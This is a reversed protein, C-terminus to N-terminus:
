RILPDFDDLLSVFHDKKVWRCGFPPDASDPPFTPVSKPLKIYDTCVRVGYDCQQYIEKGDFVCEYSTLMSSFGGDFEESYKVPGFGEDSKTKPAKPTPVNRLFLFYESGLEMKIYPGFFITEGTSAGKFGKVVRAKYIAVDYAEADGALVEVLVVKDARNYLDALQYVGPESAVGLQVCTIVLAVALPSVRSM